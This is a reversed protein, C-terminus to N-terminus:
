TATPSSRVRECRWTQRTRFTTTIVQGTVANTIPQEPSALAAQNITVSRLLNLGRTGAYNAELLLHESFTWQVGLSYQHFYPTRIGRDFLNGALRVSTVVTPFQDQSPLPYYPNEFPVAGRPKPSAHTRM